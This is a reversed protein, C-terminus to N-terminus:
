RAWELLVGARPGLLSVTTGEDQISGIAVSAQLALVAQDSLRWRLDAGPRVLYGLLELRQYGSLEHRVELSPSLALSPSLPRDLRAGLALANGRATAVTLSGPDRPGFRRMDWGYVSLAGRGLPLNAAAYVMLRDGTGSVQGGSFEDRAAASYMVAGRFYAGGGGALPGELGVRLRAEGGPTLDDGGTIPVYSAAYRYSVATGVAWSDGVKWASALGGTVAGGGGFSPAMFGLLDTATAGYLPLTTDAVTEQGTPLTGVVTVVVRGPVIAFAARLDTDVVGSKDITGGVTRVSATVFAGALDLTLREGFRQSVTVPVVLQSIRDFALGSGLLYSQYVVGGRATGGQASLAPALFLLPLAAVFRRM